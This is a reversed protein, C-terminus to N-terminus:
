KITRGKYYGQPPTEGTKIQLNDEGNTYWSFQGKKYTLGPDRYYPNYIISDGRADNYMDVFNSFGGFKNKFWQGSVHNLYYKSSVPRADNIFVKWQIHNNKARNKIIDYCEEIFEPIVEKFNGNHAGDQRAGNYKHISKDYENLPIYLREGSEILTVSLKGKSHHVWEGSIVKPHNVDVSGMSEGTNVDVVPMTGKRAASINAVGEPTQWGHDKRFAQIHQKWKALRSNLKGHREGPFHTAMVEKSAIGNVILRVALFDNRSNYAKWRVLHAFYHEEPTLKVLNTDDDTGGAHRPIIHHKEMYIADENLSLRFDNKNRKSLRDKVPVTQCYHCFDYYIKKYNM